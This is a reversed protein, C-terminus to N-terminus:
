KGQAAAYLSLDEAFRDEVIRKLEPTYFRTYPPVNSEFEDLELPLAQHPAALDSADSYKTLRRTSGCIDAVLGAEDIWGFRDGLFDLTDQLREVRGVHHFASLDRGVFRYQPMWHVNCETDDARALFRVFEEFTISRLPDYDLGAIEQAGRITRELLPLRLYHLRNRRPRVIKNLYAGVLRRLPDRLVTFRFYDQGMIIESPVPTATMGGCFDHIPSRTALFADRYPSNLVFHAKVETCANKPIAVYVLRRDPNVLTASKPFATDYGAKDGARRRHTDILIRYELRHVCAGELVAQHFATGADGIMGAEFLATGFEFWFGASVRGRSADRLQTLRAVEARWDRSQASLRALAADYGPPVTPWASRHATLLAAGSAADGAEALLEARARIKCPSPLGSDLDSDVAERFAEIAALCSARTTWAPRSAVDMSDLLASLERGASEVRGSDLLAMALDRRAASPMAAGFTEKARLFYDAGAAPDGQRVLLRGLLMDFPPPVRKLGPRHALLLALAADVDDRESLAKARALIDAPTSGDM